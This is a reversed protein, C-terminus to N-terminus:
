GQTENEENKTKDSEDSEDSETLENSETLGNVPGTEEPESMQSAIEEAEVREMEELAEVWPADLTPYIGKQLLQAAWQSLTIVGADYAMRSSEIDMKNIESIEKEDMQQLPNFTFDWDEVLRGLANPVLVSDLKGLPDYLDSSQKGSLMDYYNDLDGEGTASFGKASQGLMRTAPIDSAAAVVSLYESILNPLGSFNTAHKTFTENDQDIILAKNISKTVNALQFRKVISSLGNQTMIKSFLDKVTIVDVSAEFILSAISQTTIKVNLIEDYVREAVSGGWYNNKQFEDWPLRYGDFRIVRSEHITTGNSLKYTEPLRFNAGVNWTNLVMPTLDWRDVVLLSELDGEKIYRPDLPDSLEGLGDNVNILIASGGYLRAWKLAENVCKKVNLEKEVKKFKEIDEIELSPAKPERWKRTMDDAPIDVVKGFLWNRYLTGLYTRSLQNCSFETSGRKDNSTGLGSVLNV